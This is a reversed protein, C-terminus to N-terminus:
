RFEIYEGRNIYIERVIIREDNEIQGIIVESEALNWYISPLRRMIESAISMTLIKGDSVYKKVNYFSGDIGGISFTREANKVIEDERNCYFNNISLGFHPADDDPFINVFNRFMFISRVIWIEKNIFEVFSVGGILDSITLNSELYVNPDDGLDNVVFFFAENFAFRALEM